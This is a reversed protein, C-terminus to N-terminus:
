STTGPTNDPDGDLDPGVYKHVFVDVGGVQFQEEIVRDLFKFDNGKEPKYLSLRPM